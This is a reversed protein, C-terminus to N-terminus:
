EMWRVMTEPVTVYTGIIACLAEKWTKVTGDELCEKIVKQQHLFKSLLAVGQKTQYFVLIAPEENTGYYGPRFRKAYGEIVTKEKTIEYGLVEFHKITDCRM